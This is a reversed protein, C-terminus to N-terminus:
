KETEGENLIILYEFSISNLHMNINRFKMNEKGYKKILYNDLTAITNYEITNINSLEFTYKVKISYTDNFIDEDKGITVTIYEMNQDLKMDHLLQNVQQIEKDAVNKKGNEFKKYIDFLENRIM